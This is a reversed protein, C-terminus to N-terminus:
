GNDLEDAKALVRDELTKRDIGLIRLVERAVVLAELSNARNGGLEVRKDVENCAMIYVCMDILQEKEKEM